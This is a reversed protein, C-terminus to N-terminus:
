TNWLCMKEGYISSLEKHKKTLMDMDVDTLIVKAGYELLAEAHKPGLLGGAGTILAVKGDLDFLNRM